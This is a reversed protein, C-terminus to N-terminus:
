IIRGRTRGRKAIGDIKGGVNYSKMVGGRRATRVGAERKARQMESDSPGRRRRKEEEMEQRFAEPTVIQEEIVAEEKIKPPNKKKKKSEEARRREEARRKDRERVEDSMYYKMLTDMDKKQQAANRDPLMSRPVLDDTSGGEQLFKIKRKSPKKAKPKPPKPMRPKKPASAGFRSMKKKFMGATYKPIRMSSAM